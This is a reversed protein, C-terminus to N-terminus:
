QALWWWSQWSGAAGRSPGGSCRGRCRGRCIRMGVHRLRVESGTAAGGDDSQAVIPAANSGSEQLADMLGTPQVAAQELDLADDGRGQAALRLAHGDRCAAYRQPAGAFWVALDRGDETGRKPKAFAAPDVAPLSRRDVLRWRACGDCRLWCRMQERAVALEPM